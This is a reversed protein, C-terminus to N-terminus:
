MSALAAEAAAARCHHLCRSLHHSSELEHQSDLRISNESPVRPARPVYAALVGSFPEEFDTAPLTGWLCVSIDCDLGPIVGQRSCNRQRYPPHFPLVTVRVRASQWPIEVSMSPGNDVADAM